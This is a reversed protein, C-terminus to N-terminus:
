RVICSSVNKLFYNVFFFKILKEVWIKCMNLRLDEKKGEWKKMLMINNRVLM